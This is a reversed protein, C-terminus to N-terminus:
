LLTDALQYFKTFGDYTDIHIGEKDCYMWIDNGNENPGVYIGMQHQEWRSFVIDDIGIDGPKLEDKSVSIADIDNLLSETTHGPHDLFGGRWLCWAAFSSSDVYAPAEIDPTLRKDMSYEATTYLIFGAEIIDCRQQSLDASIYEFPDIGKIEEMKELTEVDTESNIEAFAPVGFAFVTIIMLLTTIKKM